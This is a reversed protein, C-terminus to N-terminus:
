SPSVMVLSKFFAQVADVNKDMSDVVQNLDNVQMGRAAKTLSLLSPTAFDAPTFQAHSCMPPMIHLVENVGEPM